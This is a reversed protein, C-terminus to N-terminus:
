PSLGGTKQMREKGSPKEPPRGLSSAVPRDILEQEELRFQGKVYRIGSTQIDEPASIKGDSVIDGSCEIRGAKIFRTGIVNGVSEIGDQM